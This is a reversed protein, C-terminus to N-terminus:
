RIALEMELECGEVVGGYSLTATTPPFTILRHVFFQATDKGCPSLQLFLFSLFDWLSRSEHVQVQLLDLIPGECRAGLYRLLRLHV